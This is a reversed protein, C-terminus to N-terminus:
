GHNHLASQEVAKDAKNGSLQRIIRIDGPLGIASTILLLAFGIVVLVASHTSILVILGAVIVLFTIAALVLRFIATRRNKRVVVLMDNRLALAFGGSM